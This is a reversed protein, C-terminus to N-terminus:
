GSGLRVGRNARRALAVNFIRELTLAALVCVVPIIPERYRFIVYFLMHVATYAAICLWLMLARRSWLSPMFATGLAGSVVVVFHVLWVLRAAVEVNGGVSRRGEHVPPFWFLIAKKVALRVFEAPHTAIWELAERKLTNSAHLEGRKRLAGWTPGRPTDAISVFRGTASPNNGLYLNFGGNTNLVPAGLVRYNRVMWPMAVALAAALMMGCVALKRRMGVPALAVAAVPAIALSLAANGTLALLGFSVGCALAVKLSTHKTLRLACWVAGLMLPTMLNEKALYEAYIWSPVYSAYLAAAVLRGTRGAGSERAILYCLWISLGGLLANVLQPPLPSDGFIAFVPALVFLPYGVNYMALNGMPDILGEGALLNLAMRQYARYDGAPEFDLAVVTLARLLTGCVLIALLWRLEWKHTSAKVQLVEM